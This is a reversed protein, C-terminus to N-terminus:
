ALRRDFFLLLALAMIATVLFIATLIVVPWTAVGLVVRSVIHTHATFGDSTKLTQTQYLDAVKGTATVYRDFVPRLTQERAQGAEAMKGADLLAVVDGAEKDFNDGATQLGAREGTADDGLSSRKLIRDRLDRDRVLLARGSEVMQERAQADFLTPNTSRMAQLSVTTLDQLDNLAPVTRGILESYKRDIARLYYFAILGLALNSLILLVVLAKLLRMKSRTRTETVNLWDEPM